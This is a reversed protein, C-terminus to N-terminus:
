VPSVRGKYLLKRRFVQHLQQLLPKQLLKKTLGVLKRNSQQQQQERQPQQWAQRRERVPEQPSQQVQAQAQQPQQQQGQQQPQAQVQSQVEPQAQEANQEHVQRRWRGHQNQEDHRLQEDDSLLPPQAQQSPQQGASPPLPPGEQQQPQPAHQQQRSQLLQQRLQQMARQQDLQRCRRKVQESATSPDLQQVDADGDKARRAAHIAACTQAANFCQWGRLTIGENSGPAECKFVVKIEADGSLGLISRIRAQFDEMGGGGPKVPIEYRQTHPNSSAFFLTLHSPPLTPRAHKM